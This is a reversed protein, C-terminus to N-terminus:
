GLPDHSGRGRFTRNLDFPAVDKRKSVSFDRKFIRVGLLSSLVAVSPRRIASYQIFKWAVFSVSFTQM